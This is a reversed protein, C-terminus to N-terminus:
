KREEQVNSLIERLTTWEAEKRVSFTVAAPASAKLVSAIEVEAVSREKVYYTWERLGNGTRTIALRGLGKSMVVREVEEELRLMQDLLADGPMGRDRLAYPWDISTVWPYTERTPGNPFQRPASVIVPRGGEVTELVLWQESQAFAASALLAGALMAIM